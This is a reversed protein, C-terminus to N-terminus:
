DLRPFLPLPLKSTRMEVQELVAWLRDDDHHQFPDLNHRLSGTFLVASQPIIGLKQRLQRLGLTAVDVNDICISGSRPETIRFLAILLSSKGSGTRGVIAIKERPEITFSVGKIVDPGDRYGAVLDTVM